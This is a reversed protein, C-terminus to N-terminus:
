SLESAIKDGQMVPVLGMQAKHAWRRPKTFLITLVGGGRAATYLIVLIPM